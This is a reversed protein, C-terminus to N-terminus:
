RHFFTSQYTYSRQKPVIEQVCRVRSNLLRRTFCGCCAVLLSVGLQSWVEGMQRWVTFISNDLQQRATLQREAIVLISEVVGFEDETCEDVLKSYAVKDAVSVDFRHITFLLLGTM